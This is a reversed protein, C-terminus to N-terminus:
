GSNEKNENEWHGIKTTMEERDLLRTSLKERVCQKHGKLVQREMRLEEREWELEKLRTLYIEMKMELLSFSNAMADNVFTTSTSSCTASKSVEDSISETVAIATDFIDIEQGPPNTVVIGCRKQDKSDETDTEDRGLCKRQVMEATVESDSWSERLEPSVNDSIRPELGKRNSQSTPTRLQINREEIKSSSDGVKRTAWKKERNKDVEDVSSIQIKRRSAGKVYWSRGCKKVLEKRGSKNTRRSRDSPLSGDEKHTQSSKRENRFSLSRPENKRNEEKNRSIEKPVAETAASESWDDRLEPFVDKDSIALELDVCDSDCMPLGLSVSKDEELPFFNRDGIDKKLIEEQMDLSAEKKKKNADEENSYHGSKKVLENCGSSPSYGDRKGTPLSPRKKMSSLKINEKRNSCSSAGKATGVIKVNKQCQLDKQSKKIIIKRKQKFEVDCKRRSLQMRKNEFRM